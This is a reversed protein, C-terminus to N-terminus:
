FTYGFTALHNKSKFATEYQLTYGISFKKNIQMGVGWTLGFGHNAKMSTTMGEDEWEEFQEQLEEWDQESDYGLEVLHKSFQNLLKTYTQYDGEYNIIKIYEDYLSTLNSDIGWGKALVCTYGMSLNTYFRLKDNNFSPTFLRLGTKLSLYDCDAPSSFPAAFEVNVFDWALTCGSFTAIEKQGGLNIGFGGKSAVSGIRLDAIFHAKPDLSVSSSGGGFGKSNTKAFQASASMAVTMAAAFFLYKFKM